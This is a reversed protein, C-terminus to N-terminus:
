ATLFVIPFGRSRSFLTSTREEQQRVCFLPFGWVQGYLLGSFDRFSPFSIGERSKLLPVTPLARPKVNAEHTGSKIFLFQYSTFCGCPFFFDLWRRSRDRKLCVADGFSTLCWLSSFFLTGGATEKRGVTVQDSISALTLSSSWSRPEHPLVLCVLMRSLADSFVTLPPCRGPLPVGVVMVSLSWCRVATVHTEQDETTSDSTWQYIM